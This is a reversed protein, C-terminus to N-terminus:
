LIMCVNYYFSKEKAEAHDWQKCSVNWTFCHPHKYFVFLFFNNSILIFHKTEQKREHKLALYCIFISWDLLLFSCSQSGRFLKSRRGKQLQESLDVIEAHLFEAFLRFLSSQSLQIIYFAFIIVVRWSYEQWIFFM